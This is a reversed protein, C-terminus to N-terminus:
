YNDRDHHVWKMNKGYLFPVCGLFEDGEGHKHARKNVCIVADAEEMVASIDHSVVLITKRKREKALRHKLWRRAEPDLFNDPEDLLIYRKDMSLVFDLIAKQRQGPSLAMLFMPRGGIDALSLPIPRVEGQPLYGVGFRRIYERNPLGDIIIEGKFPIFGLLAKLLTSKGGGNPGIIYVLGPYSITLNLNSLARVNNYEVTLNKIEIGEM